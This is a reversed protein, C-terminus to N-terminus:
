AGSRKGGSKKGEKILIKPFNLPDSVKKLRLLCLEKILFAKHKYGTAMIRSATNM